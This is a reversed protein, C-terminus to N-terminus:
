LEEALQDVFEKSMITINQNYIALYESIATKWSQLFRFKRNKDTNQVTISGSKTTTGNQLVKYSVVLDAVAAETYIKDWSIKGLILFILHAKDVFAFTAPLQEITLELQQGQLKKYLAKNSQLKVAKTFYSVAIAPNLTSTRRYEYQYYFLLPLVKSTKIVTTSIAPSIPKVSSAISIVSDKKKDQKPLQNGYQDAIYADVKAASLCSTMTIAVAFLLILTNRFNM